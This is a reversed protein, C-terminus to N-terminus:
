ATKPQDVAAIQAANPTLHYGFANLIRAFIAEQDLALKQGAPTLLFNNFAAFANLAATLPDM